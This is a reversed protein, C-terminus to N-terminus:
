EGEIPVQRKKDPQSADDPKRPQTEGAEGGQREPQRQPKPDSRPQSIGPKQPNLKEM